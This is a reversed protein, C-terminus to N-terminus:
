ATRLPLPEALDNLVQGGRKTNRFRDISHGLAGRADDTIRELGGELRERWKPGVKWADVFAEALDLRRKVALTEILVGAQMADKPAKASDARSASVILKHVAYREARPVTVPVGGRFLLM